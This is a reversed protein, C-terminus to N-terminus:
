AGRLEPLHREASLNGMLIPEANMAMKCCHLNGCCSYGPPCSATECCEGPPCCGLRTSSWGPQCCGDQTRDSVQGPPCCTGSRTTRSPPCCGQPTCREGSACRQGHCVLEPPTCGQPTCVEGIECCVGLCLTRDSPCDWIGSPHCQQMVPDYCDGYPYCCEQGVGCCGLLERGSPYDFYLCCNTTEHCCTRHPFSGLCPQCGPQCLEPRPGECEHRCEFKCSASDSNREAMCDDMCSDALYVGSADMGRALSRYHASSRYLSSAATPRPLSIM